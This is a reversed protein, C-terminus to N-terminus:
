DMPRSRGAEELNGSVIDNEALAICGWRSADM